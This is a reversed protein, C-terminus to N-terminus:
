FGDGETWNRGAAGARVAPDKGRALAKQRGDEMLQALSDIETTLEIDRGAPPVELELSEITGPDATQQYRDVVSAKHRWEDLQQQKMHKKYRLEFWYDFDKNDRFCVGYGDCYCSYMDPCFTANKTFIAQWLYEFVRGSVDDLLKTKLLWERYFVFKERPTSQIRAKSLAFQACCPQAVVEPLAIGPFLETWAQAMVPEEVRLSDKDVVGPHMWAPCGPDWECRLNMYGERTVRASSLRRVTEPGDHELLGAQHWSNRHAHMFIAIDPLNDYHDIIYSLYVMAEHGKNKPVTLAASKDDPIYVKVIAGALDENYLWGADEDKMKAVVLHRTYSPIAYSPSADAHSVSYDSESSPNSNNDDNHLNSGVTNPFRRWRVARPASYLYVLTTCFAVLSISLLTFGRRPGVM